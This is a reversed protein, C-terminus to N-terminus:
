GWINAKAGEPSTAWWHTVGDRKITYGYEDRLQIAWSAAWGAAKMQSPALIFQAVTGNEDVIAVEYRQRNM